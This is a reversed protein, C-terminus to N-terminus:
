ENIKGEKSQGKPFGKRALGVVWRWANAMEDDEWFSAGLKDGLLDARKQRALIKEALESHVRAENEKMVKRVYDGRGVDSLIRAWYSENIEKDRAVKGAEFGKEYGLEEMTSYSSNEKALAIVKIAEKTTIWKVGKQRTPLSVEVKNIYEEATQKKVTMKEVGYFTNHNDFCSNYDM